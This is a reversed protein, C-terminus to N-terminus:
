NLSERYHTVIQSKLLITFIESTENLDPRELKLKKEARAILYPQKIAMSFDVEIKQNVSDEEAMKQAWAQDARREWEKKREWEEEFKKAEDLRKKELQWKAGSGLGKGMLLVADRIKSYDKKYVHELESIMKQCWQLQYQEIWAIWQWRPIDDKFPSKEGFVLNKFHVDDTEHPLEKTKKSNIVRAHPAVSPTTTSVVSPTTSVGCYEKVELHDKENERLGKYVCHWLRYTSDGMKSIFGKQCLEKLAKTLTEDSSVGSRKRLKKWTVKSFESNPILCGSLAMYVMRYTTRIGNEEFLDYIDDEVKM